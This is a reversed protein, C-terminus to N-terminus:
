FPRTCVMSVMLTLCELSLFLLAANHTNVASRECEDCASLCCSEGRGRHEQGAPVRPCAARPQWPLTRPSCRVCLHRCSTNACLRCHGEGRVAEGSSSNEQGSLLSGANWQVQNKVWISTCGASAPLLDHKSDRPRTPPQKFPPSLLLPLLPAMQSALDDQSKADSSAKTDM